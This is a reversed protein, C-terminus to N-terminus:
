PDIVPMEEVMTATNMMKPAKMSPLPMPRRNWLAPVRMAPRCAPPGPFTATTLEARNPVILPEDVALTKVVPLKVM